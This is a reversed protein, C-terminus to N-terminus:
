IVPRDPEDLWRVINKVTDGCFTRFLEKSVYGIHPTALVNPLERLPHPTELPEVDYVDLAAGTIGNAGLVELLAAGDVIPGRSTNILRSTPKMQALETAGVLHYTRPSLRVHISLFDSTSFLADKSVYRVGQEEAAAPTLNQSWAVVNMGFARGIKCVESGVRGLGLLGLTKGSLEDGVTRQWGGHRLSQNESPINRALSLILAWTFEITPTSMYGTHAVVIGLSAAADEDISANASGTSAILKLNPLEGLIERPLPTRERMVCVVDFPKLREIVANPDALHDNFVSITARGNLPSWDALSLAVDQYDDLIAVNVLPNVSM